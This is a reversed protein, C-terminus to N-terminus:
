GTPRRSGTRGMLPRDVLGGPRRGAPPAVRHSRRPSTPAATLRTAAIANASSAASTTMCGVVASRSVSTATNAPMPTTTASAASTSRRSVWRSADNCAVTISVATPAIAAAAKAIQPAAADMSIEDWASFSTSM